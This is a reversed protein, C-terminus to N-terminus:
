TIIIADNETLTVTSGAYVGGMQAIITGEPIPEVNSASVYVYFARGQALGANRSQGSAIKGLRAVLTPPGIPLANNIAVTVEPHKSHNRFEM